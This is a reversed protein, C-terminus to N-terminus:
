ALDSFANGIEGEFEGGCIACVSLDGVVGFVFVQSGGEGEWGDGEIIAGLSGDILGVLWDLKVEVVSWFVEEGVTVIIEFHMHSVHSFILRKGDIAHEELNLVESLELIRKIWPVQIGSSGHFLLEGERQGGRFANEMILAWQGSGVTSFAHLPEDVLLWDGDFVAVVHLHTLQDITSLGIISIDLRDITSFYDFNSSDAGSSFIM